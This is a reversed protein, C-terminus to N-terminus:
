KGALKRYVYVEAMMSLPITVFLGVLLALAGLINILVLLIGFFFLNWRAGKTIKSSEKLADIPGLKRDVMLYPFYRFKIGWIIGPIIFLIFGVIVILSYIISALFYPIILHIHRFLDGYVTKKRDHLRLAVYIMGISITLQLAWSILTAIFGLGPANNSEFFSGAISPIINAGVVIILLIIFFKLNARAQKFGYSIADSKSFSKSAM